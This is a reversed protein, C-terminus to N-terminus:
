VGGDGCERSAILEGYVVGVIEECLLQVISHVGAREHQGLSFILFKEREVPASVFCILHDRSATCIERLCLSTEIRWNQHM